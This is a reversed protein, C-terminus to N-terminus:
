VTWDGHLFSTFGRGSGFLPFIIQIIKNNNNQKCQLGVSAAASASAPFSHNSSSTIFNETSIANENEYKRMPVLRSFGGKHLNIVYNKYSLKKASIQM